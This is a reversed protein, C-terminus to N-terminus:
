LLGNLVKASMASLRNDDVRLYRATTTVSEHGLFECVERLNAGNQLQWTGATHRLDHFRVRTEIGARILLRKWRKYRRENPFLYEKRSGRDKKLNRLLLMLEPPIALIM